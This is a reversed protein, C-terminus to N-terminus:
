FFKYLGEDFYQFEAESLKYRQYGEYFAALLQKDNKISRTALAIDYRPDGVIMGAVDIFLSVKGDVVLVNDTTCDGHIMTQKIPSPKNKKLEKLLEMTGSTQVNKIYKEAKEFQRELWDDEIFLIPAREHFRHLFQGFGKILNIKEQQTSAQALANTLIIGKEFSMILHSSENEEIFTYFTPVPLNTSKPNKLIEAETALWERYKEKTASKLLYNGTTTHLKYVTSTAGQNPLTQITVVEGLDCDKLFSFM